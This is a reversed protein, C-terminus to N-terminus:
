EDDSMTREIKTLGLVRAAQRSLFIGADRGSALVLSKDVSRGVVLPAPESSRGSYLGVAPGFDIGFRIRLPIGGRLNGQGMEDLLRTIRVCFAVAQAVQSKPDDLGPVIAQLCPGDYDVRQMDLTAAVFDFAPYVLTLTQLPPVFAAEADARLADVHEDFDLLKAFVHVGNVIVANGSKLRLDNRRDTRQDLGDGRVVPPSGTSFSSICINDFRRAVDAIRERSQKLTWAM